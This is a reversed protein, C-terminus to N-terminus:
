GGDADGTTTTTSNGAEDPDGLLEILPTLQERYNRWRGVSSTYIPQRAQEASATVVPRKTEHHRLCAEDFPLELFDLMERVVPEPNQALAEYSVDLIPLDVVDKWHAILRQYDQYFRGLHELNYSYPHVGAFDTLYCSLCTDLPNRVAHIVRAGPLAAQIVGLHLFNSPMKDTVRDAEPSLERLINLYQTAAQDLMRKPMREFRERMTASEGAQSLLGQAMLSIDRREGAGHVQPHSALIQEILSTGSRPMGVIFVPLNTRVTARPMAEIVERPTAEIVDDFQRSTANPDWRTPRFRCARQVTTFAEDYRGARDLLDALRFLLPAEVGKIAAPNRLTEKLRTIGEELRGFRPALEAHALALGAHRVGANIHQEALQFAEEIDGKIRLLEVKCQVAFPRGPALRLAEDAAVMAADMDGNVMELRALHCLYDPNSPRFKVARRFCSRAEGMEVMGSLCHGLLAHVDGNDPDYELVDRYLQAAARLDGGQHRERAANLLQQAEQGQRSSQGARSQQV